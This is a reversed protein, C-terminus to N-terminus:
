YKIVLEIVVYLYIKSLFADFILPPPPNMILKNNSEILYAM